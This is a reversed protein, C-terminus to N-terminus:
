ARQPLPYEQREMGLLEDVEKRDLTEHEVLAQALIDLKDLNSSVIDEARKEMEQVIRRIEEDILQATSESFDKPETMERGLFPHEEGQRFAVPGLKDSMGWQCVM